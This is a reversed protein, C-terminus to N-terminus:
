KSSRVAHKRGIIRTSRANVRERMSNSECRTCWSRYTHTQAMCKGNNTLHFTHTLTYKSHRCLCKTHMWVINLDTQMYPWVFIVFHLRYNIYMCILKFSKALLVSHSHTYAFSTFAHIFRESKRLNERSHVHLWKSTINDSISSNFPMMENVMKIFQKIWWLLHTGNKHVRNLWCCYCCGSNQLMWVSGHELVSFITFSSFLISIKKTANIWYMRFFVHVHVQLFLFQGVSISALAKSFHSYDLMQM